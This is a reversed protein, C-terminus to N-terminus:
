QRRTGNASKTFLQMQFFPQWTDYLNDTVQKSIFVRKSSLLIKGYLRLQSMMADYLVFSISSNVTKAVSAASHQGCDAWRSRTMDVFVRLQLDQKRFKYPMRRLGCSSRHGKM